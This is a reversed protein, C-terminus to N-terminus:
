NQFKNTRAIEGLSEIRLIIDKIEQEYNASGTYTCGLAAALNALSQADDGYQVGNYEYYCNSDSCCATVSKGVCIEDQECTEQPVTECGSIFAFFLVLLFAPLYFATKKM